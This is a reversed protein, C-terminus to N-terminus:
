AQESNRRVHFRAQHRQWHARLQAYVSLASRRLVVNKCWLGNDMFYDLVGATFQGRMAGGELILNVDLVPSGEYAPTRQAAPSTYYSQKM